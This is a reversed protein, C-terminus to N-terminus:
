AITYDDDMEIYVEPNELDEVPENIMEKIWEVMEAIAYRQFLKSIDGATSDEPSHYTIRYTLKKISEVSFINGEGSKSYTYVGEKKMSWDGRTFEKELAEIVVDNANADIYQVDLNSALSPDISEEENLKLFGDYDLIQNKM